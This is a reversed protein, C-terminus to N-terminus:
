KFGNSLKTVFHQFHKVREANILYLGELLIGENVM